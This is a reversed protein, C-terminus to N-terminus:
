VMHAVDRWGPFLRRATPTDLCGLLNMFTLKGSGSPGMIVIFEGPRFQSRGGEAGPLPRSGNRRSKGLGAVRIVVANDMAPM